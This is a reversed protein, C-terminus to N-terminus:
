HRETEDMPELLLLYEVSGHNQFDVVKFRQWLKPLWWTYDEQILHANRGDALTKHAPRNAISMLCAKKTLTQLHDLVEDLYEPEIHEMVDTCVVIDAPEPLDSYEPIAPDYQKIDVGLRKALTGKGCGYDLVDGTKYRHTMRGVMAAFKFGSQGYVKNSRHLDANLQKYHESIM